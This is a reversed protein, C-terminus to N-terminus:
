RLGPARGGHDGQLGLSLSLPLMRKIVIIVPRALLSSHASAREGPDRSYLHHFIAFLVVKGSLLRAARFLVPNTTPRSLKTSHEIRVENM